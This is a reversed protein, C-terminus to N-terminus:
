ARDRGPLHGPAHLLGRYTGASRPGREPATCHRSLRSYGPLLCAAGINRHHRARGAACPMASHARRISVWWGHSRHSKALRSRRSPSDGSRASARRSEGFSLGEAALRRAFTRESLGLSSAVKKASAEAHPLLPAISNEVATRLPSLNDPRAELARECEEIMLRNLFPDHSTVMRDLVAADVSLDDVDSGFSVDCGLLDRVRRLDGSRHHVFNANLPSVRRGALHRCLRVIALAFFEIQHRDVHRPVGAYSLEIRFIAGEHLRIIVAENAVRIYREVRRLADGVRHSSAAVYYLMGLERLDFQAALTLGLLDDGLARSALDLFEIQSRVDIRGGHDLAIVSLGARALLPEPNM